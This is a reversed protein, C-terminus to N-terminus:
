RIKPQKVNRKNDIVDAVKFWPRLNSVAWVGSYSNRSQQFNEVDELLYRDNKLVKKIEYPGRFKPILKKCVGTNSDFNKIMVYDGVQFQTPKCRKKDFNSKNYNQLDNQNKSAQERIKELYRPDENKDLQLDALNEKLEDNVEGRQQVGFLMVSPYQKITRHLSNNLAHEVIDVMQDWHKGKDNEVLKAFMPRISRNVREVQGNAQPSGTAVKIHKVNQSEMFASFDTSTFCSGRDSIITKPRSYAKFYDKLALIVEKTNTTKTPYLRVFKTCADVVVFLHKKTKTNFDVPGWHDIHLVDFPVNSKPINHLFGEERGSKTSFAICKLCNKIHITAKARMKPFWYSKSVLDVVKDIGMHGMEDHYKFLVHSEMDSPVYFLLSGDQKKRYVVGNRMEYLRHESKELLVKIEKIKKDKSQCIILNEEFTNTEVVLVNICRSLADVHQMKSGSRHELTYDYNQLELAWRAIRPNLEKKNLTLTLSNCDTFIKFKRGLLYV